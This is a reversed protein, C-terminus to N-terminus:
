CSPQSAGVSCQLCNIHSDIFVWHVPEVDALEYSVGNSLVLTCGADVLM